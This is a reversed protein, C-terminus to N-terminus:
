RPGENEISTAKNESALFYDQQYSFRLWTSEIKALVADMLINLDEVNTLLLFREKEVVGEM